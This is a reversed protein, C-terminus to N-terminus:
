NRSALQIFDNTLTLPVHLYANSGFLVLALRDQTRLKIFDDIIEKVITLRDKYQPYSGYRARSYWIHRNSTHYKKGSLNTNKTESIWQPQM